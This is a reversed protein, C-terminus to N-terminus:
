RSYMKIFDKKRSSTTVAAFFYYSIRAMYYSQARPKTYFSPRATHQLQQQNNHIYPSRAPTKAFDRLDKKPQQINHAATLNRAFFRVFSQSGYAPVTTACLLGTVIVKIVVKM